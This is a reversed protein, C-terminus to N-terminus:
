LWMFNQALMHWILFIHKWLESSRLYKPSTESRSWCLMGNEHDQWLSFERESNQETVLYTLSAPTWLNSGAAVLFCWLEPLLTQSALHVLATTSLTCWLVSSTVFGILSRCGTYRSCPISSTRVCQCVLSMVFQAAANLVHQLPAFMCVPLGALVANCFDIRSLIFASILRQQSSPDLM